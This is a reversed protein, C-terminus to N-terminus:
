AAVHASRESLGLARRLQDLALPDDLHIAVSPFRLQTEGDISLENGRSMDDWYTRVLLHLAGDVEVRVVQGTPGILTADLYRRRGNRDRRVSQLSPTPLHHRRCFNLFDIESVSQAGGEIDLLARRLLRHRRIAGANDMEDLLRTATTLRQQVGAALIGCAPRAQPMWSAADVLAREIRVRPPWAGGVIDEADFRRSEHVRVRFGRLQPFKAGRPVVVEVIPASWGVLGAAEAATRAALACPRAGALAAAALQQRRALPGNHLVLVSGSLSRWRAVSLCRDVQADTVGSTMLQERTAVADQRAALALVAHITREDLHPPLSIRM